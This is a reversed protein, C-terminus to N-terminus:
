RPLTDSPPVVHRRTLEVTLSSYGWLHYSAVPRPSGIVKIESTRRALEDFLVGLFMRALPAGLCFHVGSGFALHRNPHRDLRIVDSDDFLSEDRNVSPLWVAVAEGARVTAGSLTTDCTATRLVHTAPSSLRLIEEVVRQVDVEGRQLALWVEPQGLLMLLGSTMANRSTEGAAVIVNDCALIMEEDSIDQGQERAHLLASVINQAPDAEHRQLAEAYYRLIELHAQRGETSDVSANNVAATASQLMDVDGDAVGFLGAGVALPIKAAIDASFDCRGAELAQDILAGVTKRARDELRGVARPTFLPSICKRIVDHRPPDTLALMTGAGPYPTSLDDRLMTGRTSTFNEWDRLVRQGDQYGTVSWFSFAGDGEHWKVPCEKRLTRWVAHPDGTAYLDPDTVSPSDPHV